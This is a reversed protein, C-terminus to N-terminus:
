ESAPTELTQLNSMLGKNQYKEPLEKKLARKSLTLLFFSLIFMIAAVDFVLTPNYDYIFGSILPGLVMGTSFFSHRVGMITGYKEKPANLSIYNQEFPQFANKMVYYLLFVSYLMIFFYQSRFVVLVIIASIIQIGQMIKLDINLKSLKPVLVFNTFLGVFGTVMIFTGLQRPSYGLDIMYVDFYKSLTSASITALTLAFLFLILSRDLKAADKFNQLFSRQNVTASVATEKMSLAIYLVLLANFIAQVIFVERIFYDGMIGGIQYGITTGLAFMAVSFSIFKTRKDLSVISILHSLMLTLYASVGFGSLFRAFTMIFPNTFLVFLLQGASYILLGIVIFLKKSGRDGLIGWIPAGVLMGLSMAAFFFGFMFGPLRLDNVYTPTIPHAFNHIIGQLLYYSLTIIIFISYGKAKLAKDMIRLMIISM